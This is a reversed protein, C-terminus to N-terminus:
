ETRYIGVRNLIIQFSEIARDHLKYQSRPDDCDRVDMITSWKRCEIYRLMLVEQQEESEIQGILEIAEDRKQTLSEIQRVVDTKLTELKELNAIVMNELGDKRPSSQVRDRDYNIASIPQIGEEEILELERQKNQIQKKLLRIEELYERADIYM